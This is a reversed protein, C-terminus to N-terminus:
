GMVEQSQRAYYERCEAERGRVVRRGALPGGTETVVTVQDEQGDRRFYIVVWDRTKGLEHARATNSYMISFQWGGAHGELVPLWAKKEPNFRQPTITPLEGAEAQRRYAEDLALLLEVAPQVDPTELDQTRRQAARSLLGALYVRVMEVRKPGFGELAGLRGDHAAQELEQFTHVDLQTSIERALEPGIGPIQTFLSEPTVEGQLRELLGSRGTRVYEFILGGLREGIGPIELLAREEGRRVLGALSEGAERVRQAGDRYARVRHVNAGQAELLGAIRELVQAIEENGPKEEAM